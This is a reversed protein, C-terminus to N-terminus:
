TKKVLLQNEDVGDVVIDQNNEIYDGHSLAQRADREEVRAHPHAQCGADQWRPGYLIRRALNDPAVQILVLNARQAARQLGAVIWMKSALPLESAQWM